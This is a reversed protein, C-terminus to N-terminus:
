TVIIFGYTYTFTLFSGHLTFFSACMVHDQSAQRDLVGSVVALFVGCLGTNDGGLYALLFPPLFLTSYRHMVNNCRKGSGRVMGLAGLRVSARCDILSSRDFVVRALEQVAM